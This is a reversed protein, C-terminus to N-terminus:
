KQDLERANRLHDQLTPLSQSAFRRIDKDRAKEAAETYEAVDKVNTEIMSKVYVHDFDAATHKSLDTYAAQGDHGVGDPLPIGKVRALQTLQASIRTQDDVIQRGYKRVTYSEGREQALQGFQVQAASSEAARAIFTRDFEGPGAMDHYRDVHAACGAALAGLLVFLKRM